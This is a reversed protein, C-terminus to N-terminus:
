HFLEEEVGKEEIVIRWIFVRTWRCTCLECIWNPATSLETSRWSKGKASMMSWSMFIEPAPSFSTSDQSTFVVFLVPLSSNFAGTVSWKRSRRGLPILKQQCVTRLKFVTRNSNSINRAPQLEEFDVFAASSPCMMATFISRRSDCPM